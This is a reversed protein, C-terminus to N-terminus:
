FRDPVVNRRDDILKQVFMRVDCDRDKRDFSRRVDAIVRGAEVVKEFLDGEIERIAALLFALGVAPDVDNGAPDVGAVDAFQLM